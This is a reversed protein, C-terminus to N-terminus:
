ISIFTFYIEHVLKKQEQKKERGGKIGLVPVTGVLRPHGQFLYRGAHNRKM